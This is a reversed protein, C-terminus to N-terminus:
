KQGKQYKEVKIRIGELIAEFQETTYGLAIVIREEATLDIKAMMERLEDKAWFHLNYDGDFCENLFEHLKDGGKYNSLLSEAETQEGMAVIDREGEDLQSAIEELKALDYKEDDPWIPDERLLSRTGNDAAILEILKYLNPYM